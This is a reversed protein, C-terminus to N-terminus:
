LVELRADDRWAFTLPKGGQGPQWGSKRAALIVSRVRSPTLPELAFVEAIREPPATLLPGYNLWPDDFRVQVQLEQRGLAKQAPWVRLVLSHPDRRKISWGYSIGDVAITRMKKRSM